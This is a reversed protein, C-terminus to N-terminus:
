ILLYEKSFIDELSTGKNETYNRINLILEQRINDILSNDLIEFKYKSSFNNYNISEKIIDKYFRNFINDFEIRFMKPVICSISDEDLSILSFVFLKDEMVEIKPNIIIKLNSKITFSNYKLYELFENSMM